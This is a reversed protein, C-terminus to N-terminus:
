FFFGKFYDESDVFWPRSIYEWVFFRGGVKDISEINKVLRISTILGSHFRLPKTDEIDIQLGTDSITRVQSNCHLVFLLVFIIKIM